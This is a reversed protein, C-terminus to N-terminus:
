KREFRKYLGEKLARSPAPLARRGTARQKKLPLPAAPPEPPEVASAAPENVIAPPAAASPPEPPPPPPPTASPEPARVDDEQPSLALTGTSLHEKVEIPGPPRVLLVPAAGPPAPEFPLPPRGRAVEEEDPPM